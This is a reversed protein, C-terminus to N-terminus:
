TEVRVLFLGAGLALALAPIGLAPGLQEGARALALALVGAAVSAGYLVLVAQRHPLGLKVLRHSTHDKGGVAVHQGKWLRYITVLSTDFIPLALVVVVLVFSWWGPGSAKVKMGIAALLFGMFFTGTDGMFVTAPNFNYRLFGICAGALALAMVGVLVQHNAAAIAFFFISAIATAGASLGDMNDLLNIANSIGIIWLYTLPLDLLAAGFIHLQLGGAVAITAAAVQGLLKARPPLGGGSKWKDDAFGTLVLALTAVFIAGLEHTTAPLFVEPAAVEFRTVLLLGIWFGAYIALGGLLPTPQLHVKRGSPQDIVGWQRALRRAIPTGLLSAGLAAAFVSVYALTYQM